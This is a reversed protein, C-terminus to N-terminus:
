FLASHSGTRILKLEGCEVDDVKDYILLWDPQIHCERVKAYEGILLHDRHKAALPNDEILQAVVNLMQSWDYRGSSKIRKKDKKFQATESLKRTM